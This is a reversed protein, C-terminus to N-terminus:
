KFTGLGRGSTRIAVPTNHHNKHTVCFSVGDKEMISILRRKINVNVQLPEYEHCM